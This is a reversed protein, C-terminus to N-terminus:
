TTSSPKPSSCSSVARTLSSIRCASKPSEGASSLCVVVYVRDHIRINLLLLNPWVQRKPQPDARVAGEPERSESSPSELPRQNGHRNKREKPFHSHISRAPQHLHCKDFRIKQGALSPHQIPAECPKRPPNGTKNIPERARRVLHRLQPSSLIFGVDICNSTRAETSVFHRFTSLSSTSIPRSAHAYAYADLDPDARESGPRRNRRSEPAQQPAKRPNKASGITCVTTPSRSELHLKRRPFSDYCRSLQLAPILAGDKADLQLFAALDAHPVATDLFTASRLM